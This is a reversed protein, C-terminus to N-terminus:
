SALGHKKKELALVSLWRLTDAETQIGSAARNLCTFLALPLAERKMLTLGGGAFVGKNGPEKDRLGKSSESRHPRTFMLDGSLNRRRPSDHKWPLLGFVYIQGKGGVM